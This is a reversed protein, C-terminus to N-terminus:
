FGETGFELLNQLSCGLSVFYGVNLRGKLVGLNWGVGGNRWCKAYWILEFQWIVTLNGVRMVFLMLFNGHLIDNSNPTINTM